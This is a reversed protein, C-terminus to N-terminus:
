GAAPPSWAAARGAPAFVGAVTAAVYEGISHGIMAAPRVGWHQWLRALAYEVVFLAPQTSRPRPAAGRGRGPRHRLAAGRVDWDPLLAACEDVTAAFVPEDPLARRGHGAYQAGQGPFLFAVEPAPAATDGRVVDGATGCRRAPRSPTGARGRRGPAPARRRGVRLTHAVDAPRRGDSRWTAGALRDVRRTWRPRPRRRCRCCTRRGPRAAPGPVRDPAEELVVHANTGGIGFSSVGARRPGDTPKWALPDRAVFFPRRTSTSAGPQAERLQADAPDARAGAGARGQDGRRRRRGPRPPRHQVQGLRHRVLRSEDTDRGYVPSLAAVEIPDGLAPAPATRRSTASPARTSGPWRRGGAAIVAAQGAVSPASFGVKGAGDNNIANGRVVARVTDGDAIADALRKLVTVGVGSGWVTGNAEADFPRCHGDPSTFGEVGLYGIGHPLEVNVGGALAMDCEGNRLAECALHMAVLSTSCATHVALSPGRLNLRYSVSTAVYDAPQRHGDRHRRAPLGAIRQNRMLNNTLYATGGIGGYM